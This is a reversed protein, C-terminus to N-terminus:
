LVGTPAAKAAFARRLVWGLVVLGGLLVLCGWALLDGIERYPTWYGKVPLDAMLVSSQDHDSAVRRGQADAAFSIGGMTPEPGGSTIGMSQEVRRQPYTGTARLLAMGNERARFNAMQAHLQSIRPWDAASVLLLDADQRAAQRILAPFDADFCIVNAIKGFPTAIVPVRGDGARIPEGPVPKNKRYQWAIEGAPTLLVLKDDLPSNPFDEPVTLLALALYVGHESAFKRGRQILVAEDSQLVEAAAESWLVIKAGQQAAKISSDFLAQQRALAVRQRCATDGSDCSDFMSPQATTPKVAAVRVPSGEPAAALLWQSGLLAAIFVASWVASIRMRAVKSEASITASVCSAFWAMLFVVGWLGALSVIGAVVPLSAQTYALSGWTGFPANLSGAFEVFVMSAPFVLTAAVGRLRVSLWRDILYPLGTAIGTILCVVAYAAPPVPIMGRWLVHMALASITVVALYGVLPRTSRTFHLLFVAPLWAFVASWINTGGPGVLLLILGGVFLSIWRILTPNGLNM